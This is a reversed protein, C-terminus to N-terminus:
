SGAWCGGRLSTRGRQLRHPWITGPLGPWNRGKDRWSEVGSLAAWDWLFAVRCRHSALVRCAALAWGSTSNNCGCQNPLSLMVLFTMYKM